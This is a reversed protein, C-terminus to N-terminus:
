RGENGKMAFLRVLETEHARRDARHNQLVVARHASYWLRFASWAKGAQELCDSAELYDTRYLLQGMWFTWHGLARLAETRYPSRFKEPVDQERWAVQDLFRDVGYALVVRRWLRPARQRIRLATTTHLDRDELYM